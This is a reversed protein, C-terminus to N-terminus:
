KLNSLKFYIFLFVLYIPYVFSLILILPLLLFIEFNYILNKFYIIFLFFRIEWDEIYKRKTSKRKKRSGPFHLFFSVCSILIHINWFIIIDVYAFIRNQESRNQESRNRDSRSHEARVWKVIEKIKKNSVVKNRWKNTQKYTKNMWEKMWENM